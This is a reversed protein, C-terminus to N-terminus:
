LTQYISIRLINKIYPRIKLSKVNSYLGIIYDICILNEYTGKVLRSIFAREVKSIYAYKKMAMGLLENINKNGSGAISMIEVAIERENIHKDAM